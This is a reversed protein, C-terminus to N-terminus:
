PAPRSCDAGPPGGQDPVSGRAEWGEMISGLFDAKARRYAEAGDPAHVTKLRDYEALARPNSVFHDRLFLFFDEAGGEVVVQIGLPLEYGDDDGFSAFSATWNAPQKVAFHRGLVEVVAPFRAPAVRVLVDVDGKTLAGPLATAGIHHLGAGPVIARLRATVRGLTREVRPMLESVPVLIVSEM